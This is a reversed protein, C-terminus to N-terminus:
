PCHVCSGSYAEAGNDQLFKDKNDDYSAVSVPLSNLRQAAARPQSAASKIYQQHRSLAKVMAAIFVVDRLNVQCVILRLCM